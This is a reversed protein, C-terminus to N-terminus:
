KDYSQVVVVDSFTYRFGLSIINNRFRGHFGREDANVLDFTYRYAALVKWNENIRYGFEAGLSMDFSHNMEKNDLEYRHFDADNYHLVPTRQGIYFDGQIGYTLGLWFNSIPIRYTLSVAPSFYHFRCADPKEGEWLETPELQYRKTFFSAGMSVNWQSKSGFNYGAVIEPLFTASRKVMFNPEDARNSRSILAGIDAGVEWEAFAVMPLLLALLLNIVRRM